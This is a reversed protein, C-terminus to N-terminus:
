GWRINGHSAGASGPTKLKLGMRGQGKGHLAYEKVAGWISKELLPIGSLVMTESIDEGILRMSSAAYGGVTYVVRGWDTINQFSKTYGQKEDLYETAIDAVGVGASVGMEVLKITM